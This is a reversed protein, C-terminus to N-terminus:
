DTAPLGDKGPVPNGAIYVSQLSKTNQINELPNTSFVLFDAWKGAELTGVEKLKLCEAADGTASAFVQMPTLGAKQMLDMEMHEFYGQFRAPPGTDTGMIIKVGANSLAKLNAMAMELAKKYHQASKNGQIGKQREPDKLQELVSPDAEKLFFPDAFFDPVSEYVYTSVERTLTPCVCIDREKLLSILEEDVPKDRVSHAILDAGAKLVGKADDLYYLHVAVPLNAKHAEDIVAQYIEPPMKKGRGLNDDVRIKIYDVKMEADKQVIERAAEPTDGTAIIGAAYLRARNLDPTNQADRIALAEPGDGGLSLVTTVGYRAYLGLQERILEDTYIEPSSDLGKAGALHGHGMILGPTVFKGALDVQEAGAPVQVESAPGAAEVRGDRVILVANPIPDGAGDYLTAGVYATAGVGPQPEPSSCGVALLGCLVTSFLVTLFLLRKM